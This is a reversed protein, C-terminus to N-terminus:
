RILPSQCWRLRCSTNEWDESGLPSIVDSERVLMDSLKGPRNKDSHTYPVIEATKKGRKTIVVPAHNCAVEEIVRLAHAKFESIAM